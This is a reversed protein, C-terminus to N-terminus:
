VKTSVKFLLRLSEAVSNDWRFNKSWLRANQSLRKYEEKNNLISDVKKVFSNISSDSLLGTVNDKISDKLGPINFAITPTGVSAAELVVLGWGERYSVNILLHTKKLLEFKKKESVFGWFKIRKIGLKRIKGFLYSKYKSSCKGVVWFQIGHNYKNELKAYIELAREIGKDRTVANLFILTKIKEKKYNAVECINLGNYIVEIRKRDIGWSVLDDRTSESVTMFNIKKYFISMLSELKLGLISVFFNIPFPFQNLTWLEKAAEHIFALKPAKIYIPTFFPIGHFQDIVIDFLEKRDCIFWKAAALHVGFFQSGKRIIRVRDIYELEKANKYASTFLTVKHGAKVWGKAHEHTSIEAGGADPHRPGRWSFILINM